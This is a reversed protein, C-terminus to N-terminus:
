EVFAETNMTEAPPPPPPPPPPLAEQYIIRVNEVASRHRLKLMLIQEDPYYIWGSSDYREFESDSRWTTNHIQIGLFPRVGSIILHHASNVHFTIALNLNGGTYSARVSPSITWAWHGGDTLWTERPYYDTQNIINVLRGSNGSSAASLILSKGIATWSPNQISEAWYLLARGLRMTYEINNGEPSSAYVADNETDRNLSESILQLMRETLHAIPNGVEPRWQRMDYYVNLLGLCHDPVLMDPNANYIVEIVENALVLNSRTFLFNLAHDEKLIDLSRGRALRTIRNSKENEASVFTRYANSMGGVYGASRYSHRSSNVFGSPISRIANPFNGRQLSLSLYAIIDDETQLSSTNQNWASLNSDQWSRIVNAYNPEQAVIYDAPDFARQKGRSRYSVFSSERSLSLSERELEQGLSSFVYRSGSYMIGLQGNDRVLSSSRPSIPIIVETIDDAFEASIQLEPGNPSIFSNFTLSTGGPMIFRATNDTLIIFEPNVALSSNDFNVLSFGRGREEKLSFELGGYFIKIGGTIPQPKHDPKENLEETLYISEEGNELERASTDETTQTDEIYRGRITMGGIILSFNGKNSFQVVTLVCFVICYLVTLGIIKSALSKRM